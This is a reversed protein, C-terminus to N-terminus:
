KDADDLVIKKSVKETAASTSPQPKDHLLDSRIREITRRPKGTMAVVRNVVQEVPFAYSGVRKEEECFKLINQIIFEADDTLSKRKAM